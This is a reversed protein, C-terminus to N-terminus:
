ILIKKEDLSLEIKNIIEYKEGGYQKVILEYYSPNTIKFIDIIKVVKDINEEGFLDLLSSYPNSINKSGNDLIRRIKNKAGNLIINEKETLKIDNVIEYKEGSYQKTVIDYYSPNTVKFEDIIKIVSDIDNGFVEYLSKRKAKPLRGNFKEKAKEEQKQKLDENLLFKIKEIAENYYNQEIEPLVANTKIDFFEGKYM